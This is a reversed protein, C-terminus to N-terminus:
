VTHLDGTMVKPQDVPVHIGVGLLKALEDLKGSYRRSFVLENEEGDSIEPTSFQFKNGLVGRHIM